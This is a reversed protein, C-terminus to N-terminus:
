NHSESSFQVSDLWQKGLHIKQCTGKKLEVKDTIVAEFLIKKSLSAESEMTPHYDDIRRFYVVKLWFPWELRSGGYISDEEIIGNEV